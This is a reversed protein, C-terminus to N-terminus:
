VSAKQEMLTTLKEQLSISRLEREESMVADRKKLSLLDQWADCSESAELVKELKEIEREM